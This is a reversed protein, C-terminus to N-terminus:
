KRKKTYKLRANDIANTIQRKNNQWCAKDWFSTALPHTDLNRNWSTPNNAGTIYSNDGYYQYRAYKTLYTITGHDETATIRTRRDMNGTDYPIYPECFSRFIQAAEKNLEKGFGLNEIIDSSSYNWHFGLNKYGRAM